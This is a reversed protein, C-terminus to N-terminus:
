IYYYFRRCATLLLLWLLPPQTSAIATEEFSNVSGRGVSTSPTQLRAAAAVVVTGSYNLLQMPRKSPPRVIDQRRESCLPVSRRKREPGATPTPPTFLEHLIIGILFANLHTIETHM